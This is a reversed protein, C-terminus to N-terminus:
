EIEGTWTAMGESVNTVNFGAEFLIDSAQISRNGSRCIVLYKQSKDLNPQNEQKLASLPLNVAGIIHGEAFEDPERVDLVVAGEAQMKEVEDLDITQYTAEDQKGSCAALFLGLLLILWVSKRLTIGVKM